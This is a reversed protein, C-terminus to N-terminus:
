RGNGSNGRSEPAFMGREDRTYQGAAELFFAARADVAATLCATDWREVKEPSNGFTPGENMVRHFAALAARTCSFDMDIGNGPRGGHAWM